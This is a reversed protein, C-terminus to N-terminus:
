DKHGLDSENIILDRSEIHSFRDHLRLFRSRCGTGELFPTGKQGYRVMLFVSGLKRLERCRKPHPRPVPRPSRRRSCLHTKCLCPQFRATRFTKSGSCLLIMNTHHTPNYSAILLCRTVSSQVDRDPTPSDDLLPWSHPRGNDRSGPRKQLCRGFVDHVVSTPNRQQTTVIHPRIDLLPRSHYQWNSEYLSQM